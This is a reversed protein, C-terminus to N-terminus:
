SPPPVCVSRRRRWILGLVSIRAAASQASSALLSPRVGFPRDSRGCRVGADLVFEVRWIPMEAITLEAASREATVTWMSTFLQERSCGSEAISRGRFM